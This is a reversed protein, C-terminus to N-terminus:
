EDESVMGIIERVYSSITRNESFVASIVAVSDAGASLVDNLNATNIGGIAVLPIEGIASRVESIGKLGVVPSTDTKSKTTFIPGIAIYDIPENLARLAQEVSHTSLGIIAKEGLVMRADQPSVDEQGLHVGDAKAALAIDLRDNVILIAKHERCLDVSRKAEDFLEKGSLGKGRLQILRAGGVLM